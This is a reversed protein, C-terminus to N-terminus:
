TTVQCSEIGYETKQCTQYRLGQVGSASHLYVIEPLLFQSGALSFLWLLTQDDFMHQYHKHPALNFIDMKHMAM